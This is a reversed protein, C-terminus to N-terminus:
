EGEKARAIFEFALRRHMATRFDLSSLRNAVKELADRRVSELAERVKVQLEQEHEPKLSYPKTDIWASVTKRALIALDM